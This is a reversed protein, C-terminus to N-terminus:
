KESSRRSYYFVSLYLFGFFCMIDLLSLTILQVSQGADRLRRVGLSIYIIYICLFEITFITLINDNISKSITSLISDFIFLLFFLLALFLLSAWFQTRTVRGRFSIKWWHFKPETTPQQVQVAPTHLPAVAAPKASEESEAPAPSDPPPTSVSPAPAVTYQQPTNPESPPCHLAAQAMTPTCIAAPAEIHTNVQQDSMTTPAANEGPASNADGWLSEAVLAAGLGVAEESMDWTRAPLGTREQLIQAVAPISCTGGVLILKDPQLEPESISSILQVAMDAAREIEDRIMQEFESRKLKLQPYAGKSGNMILNREQLSSLSEKSQRLMQRNKYGLEPDLMDTELDIGCAHEKQLREKVLHYLINDINEGGRPIGATYKKYTKIEGGRRSVLAMDLTGGGWDVILANTFADDSQHSFAHAAAEPESVFSIEEFGAARAASELQQLQKPSFNVPCTIVARDVEKDLKQTCSRRIHSLFIRTLEIASFCKLEEGEFFSLPADSSGLKMKFTRAYRDPNWESWQEAEDGCLFTGDEAVYISTPIADKGNGLRINKADQKRRVFQSAITKTTGFDIGIYEGSM